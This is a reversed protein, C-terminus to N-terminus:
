PCVFNPNLFGNGFEVREDFSTNNMFGLRLGTINTRSRDLRYANKNKDIISLFMGRDGPMGNITPLDMIAIPNAFGYRLIVGTTPDLFNNGFCDSNYMLTTVDNVLVEANAKYDITKLGVITLGAPRAETAFSFGQASGNYEVTHKSLVVPVTPTTPSTPNRDGRSNDDFGNHPNDDFSNNSNDDTGNHTSNDDTSNHQNQSNDDSGFDSSGDDGGCATLLLLLGFVLVAKMFKKM